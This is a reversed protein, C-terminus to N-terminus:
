PERREAISRRRADREDALRQALHAAHHDLAHRPQKGNMRRLLPRHELDRLQLEHPRVPRDRLHERGLIRVAQPPWNAAAQHSSIALHRSGSSAHSM